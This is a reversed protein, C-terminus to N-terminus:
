TCDPFAVGPFMDRLLVSSFNVVMVDLVIVVIGFVVVMLVVCEGLRGVAPM